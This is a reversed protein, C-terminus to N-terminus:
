PIAIFFIYITTKEERERERDDRRERLSNFKPSCLFPRYKEEERRLHGCVSDCLMPENRFLIYVTGM